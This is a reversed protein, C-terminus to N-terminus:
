IEQHFVRFTTYTGPCRRSYASYRRLCPIPESCIFECKEIRLLPTSNLEAIWDHVADFKVSVIEQVTSM